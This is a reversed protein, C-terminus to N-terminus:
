RATLAADTTFVRIIGDAGGAVVRRGDRSLAITRVPGAQGRFVRPPRGTRLDWIKVVGDDGASALLRDGAAFALARVPGDHARILRQQHSLSLLRVSGDVDGSAVMRGSESLALASAGEWRGRWSRQVSRTELRWLKIGEESGATALLNANRAAAMLRLSGEELVAPPASPTRLDFLGVAGAATAAAIQGGDALFAIGSVRADAQFSALKEARELDWLVISGSPHGTLARREEVALASAAGDDLEITRVLAGSGSNWIRLTADSAASVIWRGEDASALATISGTHGTLRAYPALDVSQSAVVSAGRREVRPLSDQYAVALGAIGLGILLKYILARWPRSPLRWLRSRRPRPPARLAPLGRVGKAEALV